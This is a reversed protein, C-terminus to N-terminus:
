SIGQPVHDHLLLIGKSRVIATKVSVKITLGSTSSHPYEIGCGDSALIFRLICVYPIHM